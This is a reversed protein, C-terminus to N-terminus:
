PLNEPSPFYISKQPKQTKRGAFNPGILNICIVLPLLDNKSSSLTESFYISHTYVSTAIPTLKEGEIM